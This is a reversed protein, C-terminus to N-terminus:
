TPSDHLGAATSRPTRPISARRRFSPRSSTPASIPSWERVTRELAGARISGFSEGREPSPPSQGFFLGDRLKQTFYPGKGSFLQPDDAALRDMMASLAALLREGEEATFYIVIQDRRSAAGDPGASESVKFRVTGGIGRIIEQLADVMAGVRGAYGEPGITIYFRGIDKGADDQCDKPMYWVFREGYRFFGEKAPPLEISRKQERANGPLLSAQGRYIDYAAPADDRLEAIAEPTLHRAFIADAFGRLPALKSEDWRKGGLDRRFFRKIIRLDFPGDRHSRFSARAGMAVAALLSKQDEVAFGLWGAMRLLGATRDIHREIDREIAPADEPISGRLRKWSLLLHGM